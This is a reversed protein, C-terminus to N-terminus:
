PAFAELLAEECQVEELVRERERINDAAPEREGAVRPEAQAGTEGLQGFFMNMVADVGTARISRLNDEYFSAGARPNTIVEYSPMYDVDGREHYLQGAVARLVSKSYMTASLVHESGATATLPVPSVTLLFSIGPNEERCLEFFNTLDDYIEQFTFNHFEHVLPDVVGAITGPATPYVTGTPRHVWAETLGLTFVFIDANQFVKRVRGLHYARHDLVAEPRSLGNPEVAPRLADYYRGNKEWVIDAPQFEGRTEQILQRLQRATYINGYRASLIGYGFDSASAASLGSPAPEEDVLNLGRERLNRALHQAFCSGATAFRLAPDFRFKRQYLGQVADPPQDVVGSRWFARGPLDIYPSTM